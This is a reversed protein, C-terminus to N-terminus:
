PQGGALTVSQEGIEIENGVIGIRVAVFELPRVPAFAVDCALRGADRVAQPNNTEDCLVAYAEEQSGGAFAGRAWLGAMFVDISQALRLRLAPTNPEFVFDRLMQAFARRLLIVVRRVPVDCLDPDRTTLRSGLVRPGRGQGTRIVNIGRSNLVGHLEPSVQRSTAAMWAITRNAPACHMGAEADCLAYQGAVHGSPPVARSRKVDRPDVITVWPVYLAAFKSDFRQRWDLLGSTATRPDAIRSWPPDILAIRDRRAECHEVMAQQIAFVDEDEFVRPRDPVPRTRLPAIPDPVGCPACPDVPDRPVREQVVAPAPVICADPIAVIAPEDVLDLVSLGRPGEAQTSLFGTFDAVELASLGDRGGSLPSQSSALLPLLDAGPEALAEIQVPFPVSADDSSEPAIPYIPASLVNPGYRPHDPVFALDRAIGSVRGDLRVVMTASLRVVDIPLSPDIGGLPQHWPRVRAPDAPVFLIRSSAPDIDAVVRLVTAPGQTLRVLCDREFGAIGALKLGFTDAGVPISQSAITTGAQISVDLSDGWSGASSAKVTWYPIGPGGSNPGALLDVSSAAAGIAPDRSGIRVVWAVTGGNEFFARVAYALFGGDIPQGFHAEFAKLSGVRVPRDLPGREALGLFAPRDLRIEPPAADRAVPQWYVGPTELGFM